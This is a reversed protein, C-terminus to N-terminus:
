DKQAYHHLAHRWLDAGIMVPRRSDDRDAHSSGADMHCRDHVSQASAPQGKLSVDHEFGPTGMHRNFICKGSKPSWLNEHPM